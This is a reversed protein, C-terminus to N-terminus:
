QGLEGKRGGVEKEGGIKAKDAAVRGRDMAQPDVTFRKERVSTLNPFMERVKHKVVDSRSALVPLLSGDQEAMQRIRWEVDALRLEIRASYGECFSTYYVKKQAATLHNVDEMLCQSLMDLGLSQYMMRVMDVDSQFGVLVLYKGGLQPTGDARVSAHKETIIGQCRHHMAIYHALKMRQEPVLSGREDAFEYLLIDALVVAEETSSAEALMIQDIAHKAMLERAKDTFAQKEAPTAAPDDAKAWLAQVKRVIDAEDAM